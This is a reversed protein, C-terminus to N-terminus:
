QQESDKLVASLREMLQNLSELGSVIAQMEEKPEKEMVPSFKVRLSDEIAQVTAHGKPTLHLSVVREDQTDRIRSLFGEKELRKCMSSANASAVGLSHALTGISGVAGDRVTLLTRFQLMTLGHEESIRLFTNNVNENISRMLDWVKDKFVLVDM